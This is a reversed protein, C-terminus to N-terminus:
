ILQKAVELIKRALARHGEKRKHEIMICDNVYYKNDSEGGSLLKEKGRNSATFREIIKEGDKTLVKIELIFM